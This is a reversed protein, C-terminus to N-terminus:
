LTYPNRKALSRGIDTITIFLVMCVKAKNASSILRPLALTTQEKHVYSYSEFTM